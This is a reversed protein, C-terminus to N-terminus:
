YAHLTTPYTKFTDGVITYTSDGVFSKGTGPTVCFMASYSGRHVTLMTASFNLEALGTAVAM